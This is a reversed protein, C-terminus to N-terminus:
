LDVGSLVAKITGARGQEEVGFKVMKNNEEQKMWRAKKEEKEEGGTLWRIQRGELWGGKVREVAWM